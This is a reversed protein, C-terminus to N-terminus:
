VRSEVYKLMNNNDYVFLYYALKIIVLFIVYRKLAALVPVVIFNDLDLLTICFSQHHHFFFIEILVPALIPDSMEFFLGRGIVLFVSVM